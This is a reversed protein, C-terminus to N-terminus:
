PTELWFKFSKLTKKNEQAPPFNEITTEQQRKNDRRGVGLLPLCCFIHAVHIWRKLFSFTQLMKAVSIDPSPSALHLVIHSRADHQKCRLPSALGRVMREARIGNAEMKKNTLPTPTSPPYLPM